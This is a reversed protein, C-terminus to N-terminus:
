YRSRVIEHDDQGSYLVLGATGIVILMAAIVAAAVVKVM